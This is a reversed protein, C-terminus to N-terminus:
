IGSKAKLANYLAVEGSTGPRFNDTNFEDDNMQIRQFVTEFQSKTPVEGPGVLHLYAPRLFRMLGRFGNTRNLMMGSGMSNWARPWKARAADFYAWLVDAIEMDRKDIMMNRFILRRSEPATAKIPTKGSIYLDRDHVPNLSIYDLLSEVFTAQTLTENFRGETAVGLRQDPPPLPKKRRQRVGCCHQPV